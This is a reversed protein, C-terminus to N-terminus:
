IVTYFTMHLLGDWPLHWEKGRLFHMYDEIWEPTRYRLFLM